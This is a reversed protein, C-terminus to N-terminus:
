RNAHDKVFGQLMEADTSQVVTTAIQNAERDKAGVVVTKGVPGRGTDALEKRKACIRERCRFPMTKHQWGRKVNLSGCHPCCVGRPWRQKVIWEDAKAGTPFKRLLQKFTIGKRHNKGPAKAM